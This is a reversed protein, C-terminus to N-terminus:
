LKRLANDGGKQMLARVRQLGHSVKERVDRPVHQRVMEQELQEVAADFEALTYTGKGSMPEVGRGSSDVVEGLLGEM